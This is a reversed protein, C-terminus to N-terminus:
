TLSVWHTDQWPASLLEHPELAEESSHVSFLQHLFSLCKIWHHPQQCFAWVGRSLDEDMSGYGTRTLRMMLFLSSPFITLYLLFDKQCSSPSGHSSFLVHSSLTVPPQVHNFFIMCKHLFAMIFWLTIYLWYIRTFYMKAFQLIRCMDKTTGLVM